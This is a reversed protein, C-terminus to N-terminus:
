RLCTFISHEPSPIYYVKVRSEYYIHSLDSSHINVQFLEGLPSHVQDLPTTGTSIAFVTIQCHTIKTKSNFNEFHGLKHLNVPAIDFRSKSHTFNFDSKRCTAALHCNTHINNQMKEYSILYVLFLSVTNHSANKFDPCAQFLQRLYNQAPAIKTCLRMCSKM